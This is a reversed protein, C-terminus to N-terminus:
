WEFEAGFYQKFATKKEAFFKCHIYVQIKFFWKTKLLHHQNVEVLIRKLIWGTDKVAIPKQNAKAFSIYYNIISQFSHNSLIWFSRRDLWHYLTRFDWCRHRNMRLFCVLTNKKWNVIFTILFVGLFMSMEESEAKNFFEQKKNPM